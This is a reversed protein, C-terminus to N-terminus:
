QMQSQMSSFSQQIRSMEQQPATEVKYWGKQNMFNFLNRQNELTKNLLNTTHTRVKDCASETAATCLTSAEMKQMYLIMGAWDKEQFQNNPM